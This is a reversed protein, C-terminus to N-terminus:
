TATAITAAASTAHAAQHHALLCRLWLHAPRRPATSLCVRLSRRLTPCSTSHTRDLRRTSSRSHRHSPSGCGRGPRHEKSDITRITDACVYPPPSHSLPLAVSSASWLSYPEQQLFFRM